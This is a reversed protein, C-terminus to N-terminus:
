YQENDANEWIVLNRPLIIKKEEAKTGRIYYNSAIIDHFHTIFANRIRSCKENISNKTPDTIAKINPSIKPVNISNIRRDIDNRKAKVARYIIELETRYDPLDKFMIGEPHRLFFIYVTKVLPEMAIEMEKYDNLIIRLDKTITMRSLKPCPNIYKAIIAESIGNKRIKDLSRRIQELVRKDEEDLAEENNFNEDANDGKPREVISFAGGGLRRERGVEPIIESLIEKPHTIAETSDFSVYHFIHVLKKGGFLILSDDYWAFCSRIKKRNKQFVMYDLLFNSRLGLREIGDKSYEEGCPNCYDIMAKAEEASVTVDPLYVFALGKDALWKRIADINGKIFENAKKDYENELYFVEKSDPVFPVNFAFFGRHELHFKPKWDRAHTGYLKQYNQVREAERKDEKTDYIFFGISTALCICTVIIIIITLTSM